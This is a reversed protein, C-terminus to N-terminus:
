YNDKWPRSRHLSPHFFKSFIWIVHGLMAMLKANSAAAVTEKAVDLRPGIGSFERRFNGGFRLHSLLRRCVSPRLREGVGQGMM